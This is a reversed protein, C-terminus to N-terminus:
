IEIELLSMVRRVEVQQIGLRDFVAGLCIGEKRYIGVSAPRAASRECQRHAFICWGM